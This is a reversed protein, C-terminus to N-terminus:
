VLYSRHTDGTKWRLLAEVVRFLLFVGAPDPKDDIDLALLRMSDNLLSELNKLIQTMPPRLATVRARPVAGPNQKLDRVFEEHTCGAIHPNSQGIGPLVAHPHHKEWGLDICPM